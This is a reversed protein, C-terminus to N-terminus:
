NLSRSYAGYAMVLIAFTALVGFFVGPYKIAYLAVVFTWSLLVVAITILLKKM